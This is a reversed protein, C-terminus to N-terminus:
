GGLREVVDDGVEDTSATGGVDPTLPQGHELLETVAAEVRRAAQTEGLFNLMM